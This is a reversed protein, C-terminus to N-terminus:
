NNILNDLFLQKPHLELLGSECVQYRWQQESLTDIIKQFRQKDWWRFYIDDEFILVNNLNNEKAYKICSLNSLNNGDVNKWKLWGRM